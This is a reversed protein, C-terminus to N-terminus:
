LSALSQRLVIRDRGDANEREVFVKFIAQEPNLPGFSSPVFEGNSAIHTEIHVVRAGKMFIMTMQGESPSGSIGANSCDTDSIKIYRCIEDTPEYPGFLYFKDWEFDTLSDLALVNVYPRRAAEGVARGVEGTAFYRYVDGCGNLLGTLLVAALILRATVASVGRVTKM